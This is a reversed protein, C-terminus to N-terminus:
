FKKYSSQWCIVVFLNWNQSHIDSGKGKIEDQGFIKALRQSSLEWSTFEAILM